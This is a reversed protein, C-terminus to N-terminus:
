VSSPFKPVPTESGGSIVENSQSSIGSISKQTEAGAKVIVALSSSKKPVGILGAVPAVVVLTNALLPLPTSSAFPEVAM